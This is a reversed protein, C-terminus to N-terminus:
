FPWGGQARTSLAPLLKFAADSMGGITVRRPTGSAAHGRREGALNFTIVTKDAPVAAAVNDYGHHDAQEDTLIVVTDHGKYHTRVAKETSTGGGYFYGGQKWRDISRLLSEGPKAPFVRSDNSFSVVDVM